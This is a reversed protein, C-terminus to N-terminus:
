PAFESDSDANRADKAEYLYKPLTWVADLVTGEKLSKVASFPSILQGIPRGDWELQLERPTDFPRYGMHSWHSLASALTLQYVDECTHARPLQVRILSGPVGEYVRSPVEKRPLGAPTGPPPRVHLVMQDEPIPNEGQAALEEGAADEPGVAIPPPDTWTEGFKLYSPSQQWPALEDPAAGASASGAGGAGGVSGSAIARGFSRAEDPDREVKHM